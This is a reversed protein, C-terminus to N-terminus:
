NEQTAPTAEKLILIQVQNFPNDRFECQAQCTEGDGHVFYEGAKPPRIEGSLQLEIGYYSYKM